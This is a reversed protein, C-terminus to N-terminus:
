PKQMPIHRELISMKKYSQSNTLRSVTTIVTLSLFFLVFFFFCCLLNLANYELYDSAM